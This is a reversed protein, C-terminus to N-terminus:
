GKITIGKPLVVKERVEQIEEPSMIQGGHTQWNFCVENKSPYFIYNEFAKKGADFMARKVKYKLRIEQIEKEESEDLLALKEVRKQEARKQKESESYFGNAHNEEEEKIQEDTPRYYNTRKSTNVFKEGTLEELIKIAEKAEKEWQEFVGTRELIMAFHTANEAKNLMMFQEETIRYYKCYEAIFQEGTTKSNFGNKLHFFGNASCHMPIGMYDCLHLRNFIEYEPFLEAIKDGCAGCFSMNRDNKVKGKEWCTGTISFDQHGNKYPDDLRIKIEWQNGKKDTKNITTKM